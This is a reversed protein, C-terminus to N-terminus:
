EYGLFVEPFSEPHAGGQTFRLTKIDDGRMYANWTKVFLAAINRQPLSGQKDNMNDILRNQLLRVSACAPSRNLLQNIFENYNDDGAKRFLDFLAGTTSTSVGKYVNSVNKCDRVLPKIRTEYNDRIFERQAKITCDSGNQKRFAATLGVSDVRLLASGISGVQVYSKYGDLKLYDGLSRKVGSDMTIQAAREIGRVVITDIPEKAAVCAMLRNQGDILNGSEDFVISAGNLLWEGHCIAQVLPERKPDRNGVNTQLMKEAIEPTITEITIRVNPYIATADIGYIAPFAIPRLTKGM